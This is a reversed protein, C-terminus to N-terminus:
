LVAHPGLSCGCGGGGGQRQREVGVGGEGAVLGSPSSCGARGACLVNNNATFASDANKM